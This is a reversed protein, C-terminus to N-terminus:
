RFSFMEALSEGQALVRDAELKALDPLYGYRM